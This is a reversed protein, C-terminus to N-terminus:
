GELPGANDSERMIEFLTSRMAVWLGVAKHADESLTERSIDNWRLDGVGLLGGLSFRMSGHVPHKLRFTCNFQNLHDGFSLYAVSHWSGVSEVIEYAEAGRRSPLIESQAAARFRALFCKRIEIKSLDAESQRM